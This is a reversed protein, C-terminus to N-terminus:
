MSASRLDPSETPARTSTTASPKAPAASAIGAPSLAAPAALALPAHRM